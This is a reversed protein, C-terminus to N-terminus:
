DKLVLDPKKNDKAEDSKVYSKEIEDKIDRSVITKNDDTIQMTSGGNIGLKMM